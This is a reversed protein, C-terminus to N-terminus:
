FIFMEPAINAEMIGIFTISWQNNGIYSDVGNDSDILPQIANWDLGTGRFDVHDLGIQFGAIDDDGIANLTEYKFIDAGPGGDLYDNGKGGILTDAGAGGFLEDHGNGGILLDNGQDGGLIDNGNGGDLTDNGTWGWLYDNGQDGSLSDHGADGYLTDHGEGGYIVDDGGSGALVDKGEGGYLTDNGANGYLSDNGKEGYLLDHGAGGILEDHGNGGYLVDNGDDGYLTDHGNGGNMLDREQTGSMNDRGNDGFIRNYAYFADPQLYEIDTNRVIIDSLSTSQIEALLDADLRNEYWFRDGDRLRTFQDALITGFLEGIIGNGSPDESLGGVWLDIQDVSAYVSALAAQLAANATVDAFSAARALGMAERADNYTPLGHDRGRQINLTALDFGGAGPPGFLFNRLSDVIHADLTQTKEIAMGRILDDLSQDTGLIQVSQFFGDRLILHGEASESGDEEVRLMNESIMTHGFRFAATAFMHSINPNVSADYGSYATLPAGLLTPLFENYTIHQIEAEVMVRANQYLTEADWEPHESKFRDVWSNHERVFLTHLSTLNANESARVDGAIYDTGGTPGGNGFSGDNFPLLDGASTKLKGDDTRLYANRTADSGYVMSGDIFATIANAHERPVGDHGTAADYLSRNFPMTVDPNGTPNFFPDDLPMSISASEGHGELTLTLDHDIFQGWFIFLSSIGQANPMDGSQAVVANSIERPNPRSEDMTGVNDAYNPATERLFIEGTAGWQTHTQNNGSGDITRFEM